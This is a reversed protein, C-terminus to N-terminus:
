VTHNITSIERYLEDIELVRRSFSFRTSYEPSSLNIGEPDVGTVRWRSSKAAAPGALSQELGELTNLQDIVEDLRTLLPEAGTLDILINQPNVDSVANRAPGGSLQLDTIEMRYLRADPLTLYVKSKPFRRFYIRKAQKYEEDEMIQARGVLTLRPRLLVDSANNESMAISIRNDQEINRAHIALWAVFFFPTGDPLVALNTVVGYPFGSNPDITSLTAKNSTLLLSKAVSLADFPAASAENIALGRPTIAQASKM